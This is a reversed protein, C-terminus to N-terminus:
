PHKSSCWNSKDLHMGDGSLEPFLATLLCWMISTVLPTVTFKEISMSIFLYNESTESPSSFQDSM